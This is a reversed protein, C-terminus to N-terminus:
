AIQTAERGRESAVSLESRELAARAFVASVWAFMVSATAAILTNDTFSHVAFAIFVARMIFRDTRPAHHTWTIAWLAMLLILLGLGLYGGDVGMRLYENHAATTGLLKAILSDPDVVSKGAGIGWGVLPSQSWAQEFLPWILDRGSLNQADSSLINLLRIASSGSAMAVLVPLILMGLLILPLRRRAPFPDARLFFFAAATVGFACALPARAGSLALIVYNIAIAWLHRSRGDRYLEVLSAYVAAAAFGGLFAPHTSGQLRLLGAQDSFLPRVHALALLGGFGVIVAPVWITANIIANCWRRSLRSFSFAFPAASGVLSRVSDLFTMTPWLGHALGIVFMTIFAFSPNFVDLRAGYRLICVALLALGIVKVIATIANEQGTLDGLWMEPSTGAVFLWAGSTIVPFRIVPVAICLLTGAALFIPLVRIDYLTGVLMALLFGVMAILVFSRVDGGADRLPPPAPTRRLVARPISPSGSM